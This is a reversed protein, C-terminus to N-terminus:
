SNCKFIGGWSERFIAMEDKSMCLVSNFAGAPKCFMQKNSTIKLLLLYYASQIKLLLFFFFFLFVIETAKFLTEKVKDLCSRRLTSIM